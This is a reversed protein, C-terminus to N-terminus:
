INREKFDLADPALCAKGHVTVATVTCPLTVKSVPTLSRKVRVRSGM